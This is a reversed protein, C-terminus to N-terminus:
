VSFDIGAYFKVTENDGGNFQALLDTFNMGGSIADSFMSGIMDLSMSAQTEYLYGANISASNSRAKEFNSLAQIYGFQECVSPNDKLYKQIIYQDGADDTVVQIKGDSSLRLTFATDLDVGLEAVAMRVEATFVQELDQQYQRIDSFTIKGGKLESLEKLARELAAQNRAAQTDTASSQSYGSNLMARSLKLTAQNADMSTVNDPSDEALIDTLSLTSGYGSISSIGSM